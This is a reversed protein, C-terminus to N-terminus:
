PSQQWCQPIRNIKRGFSLAIKGDSSNCLDRLLDNIRKHEENKFQTFSNTLYFCWFVNRESRKKLEDNENGVMLKKWLIFPQSVWNISSEVSKKLNDWLVNKDISYVISKRKVDLDDIRSLFNPIFISQSSKHLKYHAARHSWTTWIM